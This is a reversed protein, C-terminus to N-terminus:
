SYGARRLVHVTHSTPDARGHGPPELNSVRGGVLVVPCEVAPGQDVSLEATMNFKAKEKAAADQKKQASVAEAVGITTPIGAITLLGIISTM